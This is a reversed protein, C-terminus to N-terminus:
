IAYSPMPHCLSHSWSVFLSSPFMDKWLIVLKGNVNWLMQFGSRANLGDSYFEVHLSTGTTSGALPLSQGCFTGILNSQLDPGDYLQFSAFFIQTLLSCSGM